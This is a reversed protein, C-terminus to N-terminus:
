ELPSGSALETVSTANNVRLREKALDFRKLPIV